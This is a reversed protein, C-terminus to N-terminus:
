VLAAIHRGLQEWDGDGEGPRKAFQWTQWGAARAPVIDNDLRDGVMLVEEPPVGQLRLRATLLRFVHPDPKSFGHEFSWFCLDRPFATLALGEPALVRELERLTYPQANSAIGTRAGSARLRRLVGAAGPMLTVIHFFAQQQLLFEDQQTAPLSAVEPLVEVVVAPWYIEPRAIGAAHARAHERAIVADCAASFEALRLRSPVGFWKRALEQWGEERDGPPPAVDLVTKYIDFIIARVSM